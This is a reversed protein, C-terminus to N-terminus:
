HSRRKWSLAHDPVLEIDVLFGSSGRVTTLNRPIGAHTEGDLRDDQGFTIDVREGVPLPEESVLRLCDRTRSVVFCTHDMSIITESEIGFVTVVARERDRREEYRRSRANRGSPPTQM